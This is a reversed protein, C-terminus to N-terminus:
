GARTSSAASQLSAPWWRAAAMIAHQVLPSHAARYLGAALKVPGRLSQRAAAHYGGAAEGHLLNEAALAATHLAIAIGDGTFSPIVGMQDGLRFAFEGPRARHVFGYPTRAVALPKDWGAAGDLRRALEPSSRGLGDLLGGWSGAANLRDESVVLCLNATERGVMQLGAYADAFLYLEVVGDLTAAQGVELRLHTKLGVKRDPARGTDRKAGRLDRKGTALFLASPRLTGLQDVELEEGELHRATRGRIVSAGAAQAAELLASDLLKRSVGAARFPLRVEVSRSGRILRMRSIPHAGLRRVDIGLSGLKRLGDEAIFEGCVKHAPEPEREIVTVARGARALLLAATAGAPGGGVVVVGGDTM